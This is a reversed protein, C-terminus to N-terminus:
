WYLGSKTHGLGQGGTSLPPLGQEKRTGGAQAEEWAITLLYRLRLCGLLYSLTRM